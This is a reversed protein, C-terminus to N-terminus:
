RLYFSLWVTLVCLFADLCFVIVRKTSRSRDLLLFALTNANKFSMEHM